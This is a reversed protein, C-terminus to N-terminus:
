FATAWAKAAALDMTLRYLDRSHNALSLDLLKINEESTAARTKAEM